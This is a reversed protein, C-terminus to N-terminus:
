RSLSLPKPTQSNCCEVSNTETNSSRPNIGVSKLMKTSGKIVIALLVTAGGYFWGFFLEYGRPLWISSIMRRCACALAAFRRSAPTPQLAAPLGKLPM